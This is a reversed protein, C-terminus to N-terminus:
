IDCPLLTQTRWTALHVKPSQYMIGYARQKKMITVATTMGYIARFYADATTNTNTNM